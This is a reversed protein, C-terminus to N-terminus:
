RVGERGQTSLLALIADAARDAMEEVSHEDDQAWAMADRVQFAVAERGIAPQPTPLVEAGAYSIDDPKRTYAIIDDRGGSHGWFWGAYPGHTTSIRGDRFLVRHNEDWDAPPGDGGAWPVMGAPIDPTTM